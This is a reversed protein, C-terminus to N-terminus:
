PEQNVAIHLITRLEPSNRTKQNRTGLKRTTMSISQSLLWMIALILGLEPSRRRRIKHNRIKMSISQSFWMIALITGLEPSKKTKHNRTTMSISQSLSM